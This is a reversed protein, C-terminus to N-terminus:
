LSIDVSFINNYVNSMAVDSGFVAILLVIQQYLLNILNGLRNLHFCVLKYSTTRFRCTKSILLSPKSSKNVRCELLRGVSFVFEM